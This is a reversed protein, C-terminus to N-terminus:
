TIYECRYASILPIFANQQANQCCIRSKVQMIRASQQQAMGDITGRQDYGM